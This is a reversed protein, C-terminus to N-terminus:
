KKDYTIKRTTDDIFEFYIKHYNKPLLDEVKEPWEIIILNKPDSKIKDFGLIGLEDAKELRYTDIHILQQFKADKPLKYIKEIVFTPSTVTESVGLSSALAKTFTTKGSGLNGYLSIITAEEINPELDGGFGVAFANTEELNKCFIEM